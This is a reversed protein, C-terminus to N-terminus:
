KCIIRLYDRWLPLLPVNSFFYVWNESFKKYVCFESNVAEHLKNFVKWSMKNKPPNPTKKEFYPRTFASNLFCYPLNVHGGFVVKIWSESYKLFPHWQFQLSRSCNRFASNWKPLLSLVYPQGNTGVTTHAATVACQPESRLECIERALGLKFM